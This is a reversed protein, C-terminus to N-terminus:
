KMAVELNLTQRISRVQAPSLHQGMCAIDRLLEAIHSPTSRAVRLGISTREQSALTALRHAEDPPLDLATALRKVVPEPPAPRRANEYESVISAAVMAKEALQRLSLQRSSRALFLFEGFSKPASSQGSDDVRAHLDCPKIHM